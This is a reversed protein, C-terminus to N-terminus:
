ISSLQRVKSVVVHKRKSTVSRIVDNSNSKEDQSSGVEKEQEAEENFRMNFIIKDLESIIVDLNAIQIELLRKEEDDLGDRLNDLLRPLAPDKEPWYKRWHLPGTPDLAGDITSANSSIMDSPNYRLAMVGFQDVLYLEGIEDTLIARSAGDKVSGFLLKGNKSHHALYLAEGLEDYGGLIPYHGTAEFYKEEEYIWLEMANDLDCLM